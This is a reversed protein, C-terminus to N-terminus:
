KARRHSSKRHPVARKVAFATSLEDGRRVHRWINAGDQAARVLWDPTPYPFPSIQREGWALWILQRRGAYRRLLDERFYLLNGDYGTPAALSLTAVSGDALTQGFSQPIGRCDFQESFPQSPVPSGGADNLKSHYSEWAYDHALIEVDVPPGGIIDVPECYREFSDGFDNRSFEPHWPIEGAFLYYNSPEEPLWHNGPYDKTTIANVLRDVDRNAVLLAKLIGFVRRGTTQDKTTLYGHVAIWPGRHPGIDSRYLLEDPVSIVGYRIWRRDDKPTQGAWRPLTVPAPPPPEPFSPDVGLDSLREDAPFRGEDTMIGAYTYFGIWGYKKGYRETPVRDMRSSYRDSAINDDVVGLLDKRWGLQWITGRIHALAALYDTHNMDYNARDDFLRGVTYNEFDVGITRDVEAAGAGNKEIPDIRSGHAFPVRENAKLKEPVADPYFRHAFTVTGQVYFRALWDNTPSNAAEGTLADQLGTLYNALADAFETDPLQHAMTVGYSAGLMRESVYSDNITLSDLTLKFLAAADGRGFYYLSRTAQDRLVRVTTTLHWMTWRARLNDEHSRKALEHWREEMRYLDDLVEKRNRRIWETWRLDRDSVTLPRLVSDLFDANLPHVNSGRTHQLRDLLDHSSIPPHIVLTRLANVTEANLYTSELNAALLLADNRAVEDLLPWLQQGYFRRPMLGALARFTDSGLPHRDPYPGVLLALSATEKLWAAMESRGMKALMADALIHGALADYIVAVRTGGSAIGPERLLIGDQELAYVISKDWPRNEDGLQCRLSSVELSRAKQEWLLSGIKNIAVRVDDEYYRQAPSALEAIRGAVQQLYRDFLATLSGPMAEIGVDKDRKPNTVECFLRLTLPHRLLGPLEADTGNIRYFKFYKRIAEITDHDFDPINLQEVDSPLAEDAFATRLTCVVLVYPYNLLRHSLSALLSKWERPDEAENLGDIVIPLRRHARRGAADVAGLLADMTAVQHGQIVVKRALDDLSHGAHLMKGHLLIGAPRDQLPATLQAALQTKGCGADAVVAVLPIALQEKVEQFSEIVTRLSALLNTAALGSPNRASRLQRPLAAARMSLPVPPADLREMLVDLDGHELGAHVDVIATAAANAASLLETTADTWPGDLLTRDGDIASKDAILQTAIERLDDWTNNEALMRRVAREADVTQHLDPLWRKQIPAVSERHLAALNDPTLVLEGFYTSRLMEADGSLHEEVEAATWLHLRMHSKLSNFWTQDGKTLPHRTWLVWDTLGPLVEETTTIAQKIKSRRTTGIARGSPLDYWRCQWGYWREPNGIACFTHLKLHFEVGPQAALAAFHGHRGYHRRILARCLMEFNSDTAGPLQTFVDWNVSPM